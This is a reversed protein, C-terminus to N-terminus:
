GGGEDQTVNDPLPLGEIAMIRLANTTASPGDHLRYDFAMYGAEVRDAFHYNHVREGGLRTLELDHTSVVGMGHKPQDDTGVLARAYAISGILRERNNTGRFIEDILFFLPYPHPADLADLLAKLRRVEAYFYSFGDALSDTVRICTFLRFPSLHLTEAAVVGGAHALIMNAGITRLFTSKGSMNSGTILAIEGTRNIAFDNNVRRDKPILPHGIAQARWLTADTEIQPFTCTPNLYAYTALASLAELEAWLDLWTPLQVHLRRKYLRLQYAFFLDWPVIANLLGWLIINSQLSSAAVVATLRRLSRSPRSRTVFPECLSALRSGSRYRYGELFRFVDRMRTMGGYLSNAEASLNVFQRGNALSIAFYLLFSYRWLSTLMGFADLVLLAINVIALLGLGIVVLRLRDQPIPTELWRRLDDSRWRDGNPASLRGYLTLKDRCGAQDTLERVLAQRDAIRAPDPIEALLWDRLRASGDYTAATDLLHHLSREGTVDLDIMFPHEPQPTSPLPPPLHAWDGSERALHTEKIRLWGEFRHIGSEIRRHAYVVVGFAALSVIFVATALTTDISASFFAAAVGLLFIWLRAWSLRSSLRKLDAIRGRLRDCTRTLARRRTEDDIAQM